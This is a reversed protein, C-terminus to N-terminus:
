SINIVLLKQALPIIENGVGKDMNPIKKVM